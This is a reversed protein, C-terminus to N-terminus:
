KSSSRKTILKTIDYKDFMADFAKVATHQQLLAELATIRERLEDSESQCLSKVQSVYATAMSRSFVGSDRLFQEADSLTEISDMQAKFGTIIANPEMPDSTVSVEKLWVSKLDRGGDNRKEIVSRSPVFGISMGRVTGHQFSARIDSALSHGKTLEGVLLLGKSDQEIHTDKGPTTHRLHEYRMLISDPGAKVAGDFAGPLVTDGSLDISNFVSGYGEFTWKDENFKFECTEFPNVLESIIM